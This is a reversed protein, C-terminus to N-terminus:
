PATMRLRTTMVQGGREYRLDVHGASALVDALEGVREPNLESGDVALLVDGPQLGARALVASGEAGRAMVAYGAPRGQRLRPTLTMAARLQAGTVAAQTEGAAGAAPPPPPPPAAGPASGPVPFSLRRGGPGQGLMVHDAAVSALILGGPVQEGVTYLRQEGGAAGIIASGGGPGGTRVGYLQLDGQAPADSALGTALGQRFFPDFRALIDADAPTAPVALVPAGLPGPPPAALSWALRAAQVGLVVVLAVETVALITRPRVSVGRIVAPLNM